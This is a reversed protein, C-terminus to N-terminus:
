NGFISALATRKHIMDSKLDDIATKIMQYDTVMLTVDAPREIICGGLGDRGIFIAGDHVLTVTVNVVANIADGRELKGRLEDDCDDDCWDDVDYSVAVEIKHSTDNISVTESSTSHIIKM